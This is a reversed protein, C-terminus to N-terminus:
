ALTRLAGAQRLARTRNLLKDQPLPRPRLNHNSFQQLKRQSRPHLQLNNHRCTHLSFLPPSRV